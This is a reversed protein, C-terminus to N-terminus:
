KKETKRKGSGMTKRVNGRVTRSNTSTRQGRAPLNKAHRSGRYSKIDRLRRINSSIERRLEGEVKMGEMIARIKAEDEVSIESPKKQSDVGASRLIVDAKSRGVGYVATLAFELKKHDPITIGFIRMNIIKGRGKNINQILRACLM